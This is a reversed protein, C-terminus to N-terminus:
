EVKTPLIPPDEHVSDVDAIFVFSSNPEEFRMRLVSSGLAHFSGAQDPDIKLLRDKVTTDGKEIAEMDRESVKTLHLEQVERTGREANTAVLKGDPNPVVFTEAFDDARRKVILDM